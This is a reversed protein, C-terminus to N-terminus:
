VVKNGAEQITENGVNHRVRLDKIKTGRPMKGEAMLGVLRVGFQPHQPISVSVIAFM